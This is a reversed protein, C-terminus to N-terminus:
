VTKTATSQAGHDERDDLDLQVTLPSRRWPEDTLDEM